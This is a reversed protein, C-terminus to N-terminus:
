MVRHRTLTHLRTAKRLFLVYSHAQAGLCIGSGTCAGGRGEVVSSCGEQVYVSQWCVQHPPPPLLSGLLAMACYVVQHCLSPHLSPILQLSVARLLLFSTYTHTHTRARTHTHTNARAHTHPGGVPYCVDILSSCVSPLASVMVGGGGKVANCLEHVCM